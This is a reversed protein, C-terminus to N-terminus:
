LIFRKTELKLKKLHFLKMTVVNKSHMNKTNIPVGKQPWNLPALDTNGVACTVVRDTLVPGAADYDGSLYVRDRLVAVRSSTSGSAM